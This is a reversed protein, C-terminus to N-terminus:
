ISVHSRSHWGSHKVSNLDRRELRFGIDKLCKDILVDLDRRYRGSAELFEADLIKRAIITM